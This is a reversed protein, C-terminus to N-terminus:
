NGQLTFITTSLPPLTLVLSHPRDAYAVRESWVGGGNGMGSGGYHSSDTNLREAYFGQEPVGIRYGVRPVPTFNCVVIATESGTGRRLFAVVSDEASDSLLWEFGGAECDLSHLAPLERYLHNLDRVLLQVGRHPADETLHWDLSQDHNWEGWQAFEGGMFLLKKGPHGWMFGFYARLNAFKQWADGPMKGILSGKGHVVEDHSLPLIFNETYAYIMGFTLNHHEYKRYIPDKEMYKLTDHMWGMNWKFGFGLGGDYTPRSVGPFATSEEAISTAAPNEAFLAENMRKLLAIAELNERGGQQNPIWEGHKRSYDRYLMSAVADVRIADIGYRDIWFIANAILFNAVETRGFNYILTNWDQHFGERPDSHEYLHTGDFQALGHADTPFHGPVWDLIIRLGAKHAEDIFFLFDDPTGFRSTPAHLGTPQYGWSGSFPHENIPMLELHTFGMWQAYPILTEALERYSLPQNDEKRRWSGPHVEYISIADRRTQHDIPKTNAHPLPWVISATAPPQEAYFAYPDARLPLLHGQADQLEYKYLAGKGIAPIFLAWIGSARLPQMVHQNGDWGNFDGVVSVRRANPAWVAFHVGEQGNLTTIHAGLKEYSKLHHGEQLLYLDFDTIFEEKAAATVPLGEGEPLPNPSPASARVNAARKGEGGAQAAGEGLPLPASMRAKVKVTKGKGPAREKPAAKALVLENASVTQAAADPTARKKSPM